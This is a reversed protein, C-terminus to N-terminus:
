LIDIISHELDICIVSGGGLSTGLRIQKRDSTPLIELVTNNSIQDTNIGLHNKRYAITPADAYLVIIDSDAYKVNTIIGTVATSVRLKISKIAWTLADNGVDTVSIPLVLQSNYFNNSTVENDVTYLQYVVNLNQGTINTGIDSISLTKINFKTYTSNRSIENGPELSFGGISPAEHRIVSTTISDSSLVLNEKKVVVKWNRALDSTIEGIKYSTTNNITWKANIYIDDKFIGSENNPIVISASGIPNYGGEGEEATKRQLELTYSGASYFTLFARARLYLGEQLSALPTLQFWTLNETSYQLEFPTEGFIPSKNYSITCYNITSFIQDYINTFSVKVYQRCTGQYSSVWDGFRVFNTKTIPIFLQSNESTNQITEIAINKRSFTDESPGVDVTMAKIKYTGSSIITGGNFGCPATCSLQINASQDYININTPTIELSNLTPAPLKSRTFPSCTKTIYKDKLSLTFTATAGNSIGTITADVYYTNGSLVRPDSLSVKPVDSAVNSTVGLTISSMSEDKDYWIRVREGFHNNDLLNGNGFQDYSGVTPRAAIAYISSESEATEELDDILIVKIRIYYVQSSNYNSPLLSNPIVDVLNTSSGSGVTQSSEPIDSYTGGNATTSCKYQLKATVSKNAQVTTGIRQSYYYTDSKTSNNAIYGINAFSPYGSAFAPATNKTISISKYSSSYELGDFTWFYYTAASSVNLTISSSSFSTKTGTSSTSYAYSLTQGTDSTAGGNVTFSISVPHSTNTTSYIKTQSARVSTLATPLTNVKYTLMASSLSSYYSSGASGKTVVKYKYTSGRTGANTFSYSNTTLEVKTSNSTTPDDGNSTYYLTYGTISNNTGGSAGTWSLTYSASPIIISTNGINTNGQKFTFSNPPTCATTLASLSMTGSLSGTGATTNSLNYTASISINAAAGNAQNVSTTITKIPGCWQENPYYSYTGNSQNFGARENFIISGNVTVKLTDSYQWSKYATSSGVNVTRLYFKLQLNATTGSYSTRSWDVKFEYKHSYTGGSFSGTITGSTAM